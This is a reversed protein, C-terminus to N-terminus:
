LEYLCSVDIKVKDEIPNIRLGSECDNLAKEYM